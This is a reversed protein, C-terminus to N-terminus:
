RRGKVPAKARTASTAGKAAKAGAAGKSGKSSKGWDARMQALGDMYVAVRDREEESPMSKLLDLAKELDAQITPKTTEFYLRRIEAVKDDTTLMKLPPM